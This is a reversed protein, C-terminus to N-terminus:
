EELPLINKEELIKEPKSKRHSLYSIPLLLNKPM